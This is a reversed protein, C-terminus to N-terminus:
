ILEISIFEYFSNVASIVQDYQLIYDGLFFLVLQLTVAQQSVFYFLAVIVEQM